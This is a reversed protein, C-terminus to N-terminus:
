TRRIAARRQRTPDIVSSLPVGYWRKFSRTFQAKNAFGLRQAIEELAHGQSLMQLAKQGRLFGLLTTVNIGHELLRRQLTRPTMALRQAVSPLSVEGIALCYNLLAAIVRFFDNEAPMEMLPDLAQLPMTKHGSPVPNLQAAWIMPFCIANAPQQWLVPIGLVADLENTTSIPPGAFHVRTQETYNPCFHRLILLQLTAVLQKEYQQGLSPGEAPQFIWHIDRRVPFDIYLRSGSQMLPNLGLNIRRMSTSLDPAALVWDQVREIANAPGMTNFRAPYLPDGSLTGIADLLRRAEVNPILINPEELLHAPLGCTTLAAQRCGYVQEVWELLHIVVSGQTFGYGFPKM